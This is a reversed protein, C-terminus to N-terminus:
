RRASKSLSIHAPVRNVQVRYRRNRSEDLGVPKGPLALREVLNFGLNDAVDAFLPNDAPWYESSTVKTNASQGVSTKSYDSLIESTNSERHIAKPEHIGKRWSGM